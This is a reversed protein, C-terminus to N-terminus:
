PRVTRLRAAALGRAARAHAEAGCGSSTISVAVSALGQRALETLLDLDRLVLASKTIVSVPHRTRALVELISRTVKM